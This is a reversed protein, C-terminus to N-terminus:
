DIEIIQNAMFQVLADLETPDTSTYLRLLKYLSVFKENTTSIDLIAKQGKNM